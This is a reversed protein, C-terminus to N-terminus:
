IAEIFMEGTWSPSAGFRQDYDLGPRAAVAIGLRRPTPARIGRVRHAVISMRAITAVAPAHDRYSISLAGSTCSLIGRRSSTANNYSDDRARVIGVSLIRM